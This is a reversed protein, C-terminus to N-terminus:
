NSWGYCYGSGCLAVEICVYESGVLKSVLSSRAAEEMWSQQSKLDIWRWFRWCRTLTRWCYGILFVANKGPNEAQEALFFIRWCYGFYKVKNTGFIWPGDQFGITTNKKKMLRCRSIDFHLASVSFTFSSWDSRRYYWFSRGFLQNDRERERKSHM